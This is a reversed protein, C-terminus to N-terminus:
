EEDAAAAFECTVALKNLKLRGRNASLSGLYTTVGPPTTLSVRLSFDSSTYTYAVDGTSGGNDPAFKVIFAGVLKGAKELTAVKLNYPANPTVLPTMKLISLKYGGGNCVAEAKNLDSSSAAFSVAATFFSILTFWKM